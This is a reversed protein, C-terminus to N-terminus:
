SIQPTECPPGSPFDCGMVEPGLLDHHKCVVLLVEEMRGRVLAILKPKLWPRKRNRM